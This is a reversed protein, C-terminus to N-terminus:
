LKLHECVLRAVLPLEKAIPTRLMNVDLDRFSFRLRDLADADKFIQLLLKVQDKREQIYPLNEIALYGEADPISHYKCILELIDNEIGMVYKFYKAGEGGHERDEGDNMRQSDHFVAATALISTDQLSLNYCDAIILCLLLVRLAHEKGHVQSDRGFNVGQLLGKYEFFINSLEEIKESLFELGKLSKESIINVNQPDIFIENENRNTIFEIVDEKNAEATLIRADDNGFRCAFFYARNIDLTWSFAREHPTSKSGEGRYLRIKEPLKEITNCAEVISEKTRQRIVYRTLETGFESFGLDTSFYVNSFLAYIDVDNRGSELVMKLYQFRMRDPFDYIMLYFKGERAHKEAISVSDPVVGDLSKIMEFEVHIGCIALTKKNFYYSACSIVPAYWVCEPDVDYKMRFEDLTLPIFYGKEQFVRKDEETRVSTQPIADEFGVSRIKSIIKDYM